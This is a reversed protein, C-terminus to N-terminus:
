LLELPRNLLKSKSEGSDGPAGTDEADALYGWFKSSFLTEPRLYKRMKADDKWAACKHEIVLRLQEDTAGERMRSRLKEYNSKVHALSRGSRENLLDIAAAARADLESSVTDRKKNKNNNNAVSTNRNQQAEHAVGACRRTERTKQMRVASLMRAKATSSLHKDFEPLEIGADSVVVYGVRQLADCFGTCCVIRDVAVPTASINRDTTVDSAWSWFRFLKGIVCCQDLGTIQCLELVKPSDWLAHRM